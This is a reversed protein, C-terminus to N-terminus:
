REVWGLTSTPLPSPLSSATGPPTHQPLFSLLRRRACRRRRGLPPTTCTPQSKAPHQQEAASDLAPQLAALCVIELIAAVLVLLLWGHAASVSLEM